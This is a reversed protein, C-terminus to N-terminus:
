VKAGSGPPIIQLTVIGGIVKDQDRLPFLSFRVPAPQGNRGLIFAFQDRLDRGEKMAQTIPNHQQTATDPDPVGLQVISALPQNILDTTDLGTLHQVAPNVRSINAVKTIVMVLDTISDVINHNYRLQHELALNSWERELNKAALDRNAVVLETTRQQVQKELQANAEQLALAVQHRAALDDRILWVVGLLLLGDLVVGLWVTWRTTQAQLYSATDRTSLLDLEDEKLKKIKRQLDPGDTGGIVAVLMSQAQEIRGEQRATLIGQLQVLRLNVLTEIETIQANQDPENRTLAMILDLHELVASRARNCVALETVTGSATYTQTTVDAVYLATQLAEVEMIVAHTHNVWDSNTTSHNINRVAQVAVVVLFISILLFFILIRRLTHDKM